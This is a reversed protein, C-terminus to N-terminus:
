FSGIVPYWSNHCCVAVTPCQWVENDHEILLRQFQNNYSEVKLEVILVDNLM